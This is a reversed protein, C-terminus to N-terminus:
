QKWIPLLDTTLKVDNSEKVPIKLVYGDPIIPTIPVGTNARIIENMYFPSGYMETSVQDWRVGGRCTYLIEDAM